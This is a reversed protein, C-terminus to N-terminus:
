KDNSVNELLIGVEKLLALRNAAQQGIVPVSSAIAVVSAICCLRIARGALEQLREQDMSMIEPYENSPNWDLFEIYANILTIAKAHRENSDICKNRRLWSETAPFGAIKPVNKKFFNNVNLILSFHNM